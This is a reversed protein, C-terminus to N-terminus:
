RLKANEDAMMSPRNKYKKQGKKAYKLRRSCEFKQVRDLM